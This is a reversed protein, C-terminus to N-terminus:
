PNYLASVICTFRGDKLQKSNNKGAENLICEFTGKIIVANKQNGITGSEKIETITFHSGTQDVVPPTGNRKTTSWNFNGVPNDAFSVQVADTLATDCLMDICKYNKDGLRLLSKLRALNGTNDNNIYHYNAFLFSIQANGGLKFIPGLKWATVPKNRDDASWGAYENMEDHPLVTEYKQGDITFSISFQEDYQPPKSDKRCSIILALLIVLTSLKM